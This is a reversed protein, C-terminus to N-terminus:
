RYVLVPIKSHTLVKNTQSGLVLGAVGGRGHAAMVILDCGGREASHVIGNWPTEGQVLVRKCPVQAAKAAAEVRNLYKKGEEEAAARLEDYLRNDVWAGEGYYVGFNSPYMHFATITAGHTKALAVAATIAKGSIESGDTPVLIHKFM